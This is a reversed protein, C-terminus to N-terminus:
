AFKSVLGNKPGARDNARRTPRPNYRSFNQFELLMRVNQIYVRARSLVSMFAYPM